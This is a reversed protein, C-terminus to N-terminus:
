RAFDIHACLYSIFDIFLYIFIFLIMHFLYALLYNSCLPVENTNEISPNVVATHDKFDCFVYGSLGVARCSILKIDNARCCDDISITNMVSSDSTVVVDTRRDAICASLSVSWKIDTPLSSSLKVRSLVENCFTKSECIISLKLFGSLVLNRIIEEALATDKGQVVVAIHSERIRLQGGRGYVLLQRSFYQDDVAALIPPAPVTSTSYIRSTRSFSLSAIQSPFKLNYQKWRIAFGLWFISVTQFLISLIRM